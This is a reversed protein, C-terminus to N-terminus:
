FQSLYHNVEEQTALNDSFASATGAAIGTQFAKEYHKHKEYGAVFGAVMSDGAGVSNKVKGKFGGHRFEQGDETVLVAGDGAMSVLVNRAGKEQLLKVYKIVEDQTKIEVGFLEGLEHHNPKILFPQLPLVNMLLEKTTDVVIQIGRGKFREMIQRYIDSPLTSPVSGALVLTDGEGLTDIQGYLAEIHKERLVPGNGNIETEKDSKLKVNIRTMGEEVEVFDSKVGHAEIMRSIEQGTFGAIFGLATNNVGLNKLVISVNIGKGGPLMNETTTRNVAGAKFAEVGVMYDIAPNLTVTSIM